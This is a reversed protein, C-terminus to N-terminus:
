LGFWPLIAGRTVLLGFYDNLYYFCIILDKSRAAQKNSM